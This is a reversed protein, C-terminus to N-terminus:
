FKLYIWASSLWQSANGAFTNKMEFKTIKEYIISSPQGAPAISNSNLYWEGTM